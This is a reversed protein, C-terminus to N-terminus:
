QLSAALKDFSENWGQSTMDSMEGAPLGAHTLTMKTRGNQEEFIVTVHMEFAIDESMGYDTAPVANGDADAFSTTYVLREFPVIELYEGTNYNERGDPWRMCWLFKGGVRLDIECRPSTFIKPGWWRMFREPETWAKWVLERPADFVRTLVIAQRDTDPVADGGAIM